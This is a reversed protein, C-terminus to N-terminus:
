CFIFNFLFLLLIFFFVFSMAVWFLAGSFRGTDCIFKVTASLIDHNQTKSFKSHGFLLITFLIGPNLPLLNVDLQLLTNFMALRENSHDSCHMLFHETTEISNNRCSCFPDLTDAFNHNFKHERLHSFGVRLWNLYVVGMNGSFVSFVPNANPRFFKLIANKFSSISPLNRIGGDLNNWESICFPFFSARYRETRCFPEVFPPRIRRGAGGDDEGRQPPLNDSLYTPAFGNIIKYFFILRQSFRRDALSELGLELYLKETSTGRFCGTIALCANYQISELKEAFHSNGPRDYVVDGYDLHPRM